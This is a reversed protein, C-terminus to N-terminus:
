DTPLSLSLSIFECSLKIDHGNLLIVTIHGGALPAQSSEHIRLVLSHAKSGILFCNTVGTANMGGNHKFTQRAMSIMVASLLTCIQTVSCSHVASHGEEKVADELEIFFQSVLLFGILM